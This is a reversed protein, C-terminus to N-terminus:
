WTMAYVDDHSAVRTTLGDDRPRLPCATWEDVVVVLARVCEGLLNALMELLVGAMVFIVLFPFFITFLIQVPRDLLRFRVRYVRVRWPFVLRLQRTAVTRALFCSQLVLGM